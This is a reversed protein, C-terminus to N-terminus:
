CAVCACNCDGLNAVRLVDRRLVAILATSSGTFQKQKAEELAQLSAESMVDVPDVNYYDLFLPDDVDDYRELGTACDAHRILASRSATLSRV